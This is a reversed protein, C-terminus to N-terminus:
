KDRGKIKTKIRELLDPKKPKAHAIIGLDEVTGDARRVIASVTVEKVTGKATNM